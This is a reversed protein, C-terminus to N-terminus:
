FLIKDLDDWDKYYPLQERVKKLVDYEIDAILLGEEHAPMKAVVEGIPNIVM